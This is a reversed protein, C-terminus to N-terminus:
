LDISLRSRYGLALGCVAASRRAITQVERDRLGRTAEVVDALSMQEAGRDRFESLGGLRWMQRYSLGDALREAMCRALPAPLGADLFAARM